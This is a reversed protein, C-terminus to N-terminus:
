HDKLERKASEILDRARLNKMRKIIRLAYKMVEDFFRFVFYKTKNRM